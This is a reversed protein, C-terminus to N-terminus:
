ALSGVAQGTVLEIEDADVDVAAHQNILELTAVFRCGSEKRVLVGQVGQMSGHKIRVREGVVLERYPEVRQHCFDSRLFEIESDPIPVPGRSNGVIHVVGPSRFIMQREPAQIHVFLYCPFLPQVIRVRERSKWVHTSEWTPLFTEIQYADLHRAVSRENQHMTYVAYWRRGTDVKLSQRYSTVEGAQTEMVTQAKSLGV